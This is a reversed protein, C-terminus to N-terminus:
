LTLRGLGLEKGAEPPLPLTDTLVPLPQAHDAVLSLQIVIVEPALPVPFPATEKATAALGPEALVPLKFTAPWVRDTVWSALEEHLKEMYGVCCLRSEPPPVPLTPTVAPAPQAQVALLLAAQNAM